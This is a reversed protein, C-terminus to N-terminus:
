EGYGKQAVHRNLASWTPNADLVALVDDYDAHEAAFGLASYVRTLLEYDASTDLTWRLHSRDVGDVVQGIRFRRPHRYLYPTVHERDPLATAGRDAMELMAVPFVETDLGRPYSRDLTNSCYDLEQSRDLFHRIVRSTVSPAILPCDSTIRVVISAKAASAAIVYRALVDEAPGRFVPADLAGLHDILPTEEARTTTAIVVADIEPVKRVREVVREIVPRGGLDLM